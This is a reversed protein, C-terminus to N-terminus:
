RNTRESDSLLHEPVPERESKPDLNLGAEEVVQAYDQPTMWDDGYKKMWVPPCQRAKVREGCVYGRYPNGTKGTGEKYLMHGHKCIPPEPMKEAGLKSKLLAISEAAPPVDRKSTHAEPWTQQAQLTQAKEMDQRTPRANSPTLAGIARGVASTVCNEVWFDRNVGHTQRFEYAYDTAAPLEDPADSRYITAKVLVRGQEYDIHIIETIIRGTPFEQRFRTIRANVDEYNSLDFAM